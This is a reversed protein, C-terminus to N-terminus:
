GFVREAMDLIERAELETMRDRVDAEAEIDSALMSISITLINGSDNFTFTSPLWEDIRDYMLGLIKQVQEKVIARQSESVASFDYRSMMGKDRQEKRFDWLDDSNIRSTIVRVETSDSIGDM